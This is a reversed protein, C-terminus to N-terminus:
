NVKIIGLQDLLPTSCVGNDNCYVNYDSYSGINRNYERIENIKDPTLVIKYENPNTTNVNSYIAGARTTNYSNNRGYIVSSVTSNQKNCPDDPNNSCWNTNTERDFPTNKDITRFELDIKGNINPNYKIVEPEVYYECNNGEGFSFISNELNTISFNFKPYSEKADNFNSAVGYGLITCSDKLKGDGDLCDVSLEKRGTIKKAYIPTPKYSINVSGEIKYFNGELTSTVDTPELSYELVEEALIVNQIYDSTDIFNNKTIDASYNNYVDKHIFCTKTLVGNLVSEDKGINFILKGAKVIIDKNYNVNAGKTLEFDTLCYSQDTISSSIIRDNYDSINQNTFKNEVNSSVQDTSLCANTIEYNPTYNSCATEADKITFNLLNRRSEQNWAGKHYTRYLDIREIESPNNNYTNKFEYVCSDQWRAYLHLEKNNIGYQGNTYVWNGSWDTWGYGDDTEGDSNTTWGLFTHDARNFLDSGRITYDDNFSLSDEILSQGSSTYGGNGHYIVKYDDPTWEAYLYCYVEKTNATTKNKDDWQAYTTSPYETDQNLIEGSSYVKWGSFTYGTRTLQLTSANYPDSNDGHNVTHFYVQNGYMIWGYANKPLTTTGGNPNYAIHVKNREITVTEYGYSIPQKSSGCSYINALYYTGEVNNSYNTKTAVANDYLTQYAGSPTYSYSSNQLKWIIRQIQVYVSDDYLNGGNKLVYGIAARLANGTGSNDITCVTELSALSVGRGTCFVPTNDQTYLFWVKDNSPGSWNSGKGYYANGCKAASCYKYVIGKSACSGGIDKRICSASAAAETKIICLFFIILIFLLKKIEKM